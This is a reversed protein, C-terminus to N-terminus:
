VTAPTPGFHLVPLSLRGVVIDFASRGMVLAVAGIVAAAGVVIVAIFIVASNGQGSALLAYAGTVYSVVTPAMGSVVVAGKSTKEINIQCASSFGREKKRRRRSSRYDM